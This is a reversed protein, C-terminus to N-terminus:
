ARLRPNIVTPLFRCVRSALEEAHDLKALARLEDIAPKPLSGKLESILKMAHGYSEAQEPRSVRDTEPLLGLDIAVDRAAGGFAGLVILPKRATLTALAEEAVGPFEGQYRDDALEKIGMKGGMIVRADMMETSLKRMATFAAAPSVATERQWKGFAERDVPRTRGEKADRLAIGEDTALLRGVIRDGSIVQTDTIETGEALAHRLEEFPAIRWIPEPLLHIFPPEPGRIAYAKALHQFIKFTYGDPDLNGGYLVRAGHRIFTTCLVFLVREVERAPYGLKMMDPATGISVAIVKGRLTQETV